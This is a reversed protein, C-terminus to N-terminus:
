FLLSAPQPSSDPSAKQCQGARSNGEQDKLTERASNGLQVARNWHSASASGMQVLRINKMRKKGKGGWEGCPM